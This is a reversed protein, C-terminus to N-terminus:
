RYRMHRISISVGTYLIYILYPIGSVLRNRRHAQDGLGWIGARIHALGAHDLLFIATTIASAVAPTPRAPAAAHTASPPLPQTAAGAGAGAVAVAVAVAAAAAAAAAVALSLAVAVTYITNHM